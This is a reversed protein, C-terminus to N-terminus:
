SVMRLGVHPGHLKGEDRAEHDSPTFLGLAVRTEKIHNLVGKLFFVLAKKETAESTMPYGTAGEVLALMRRMDHFLSHDLHDQPRQFLRHQLFDGLVASDEKSFDYDQRNAAAAELGARYGIFRVLLKLHREAVHIQRSPARAPDIGVLRFMEAVETNRIM